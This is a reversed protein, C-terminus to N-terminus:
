NKIPISPSDQTSILYVVSQIDIVKKARNTYDILTFTRCDNSMNLRINNEKDDYLVIYGM